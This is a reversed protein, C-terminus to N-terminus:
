RFLRAVAVIGHHDSTPVSHCLRMRFNCTSTTVIRLPPPPPPPCSGIYLEGPVETQVPPLDTELLNCSIRDASKAVEDSGVKFLPKKAPLVKLYVGVITKHWGKPSM